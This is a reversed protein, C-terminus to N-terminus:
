DTAYLESEIWQRMRAFRAEPPEDGKWYAEDNM